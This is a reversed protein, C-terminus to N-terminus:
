KQKSRYELWLKWQGPTMAKSLKVDSEKSYAQIAATSDKGKPTSMIIKDISMEKDLLIQKIKPTQDDKLTCIAIMQRLTITARDEPPLKNEVVVKVDKKVPTAIAPAVTQADLSIGTMVLSSALLFTKIM